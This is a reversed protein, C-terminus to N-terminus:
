VRRRVSEVRCAVSAFIVARYIYICVAVDVPLPVACSYILVMPFLPYHNIYTPENFKLAKYASIRSGLTCVLTRDYVIRIFSNFTFKGTRSIIARDARIFQGADRFVFWLIVIYM